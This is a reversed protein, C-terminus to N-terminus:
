EYETSFRIFCTPRNSRYSFSSELIVREFFMGESQAEGSCRQRAAILATPRYQWTRGRRLDPPSDHIDLCHATYKQPTRYDVISNQQYPEKEKHQCVIPQILKVASPKMKRHLLKVHKVVRPHRDVLNANDQQVQDRVNDQMYGLNPTM